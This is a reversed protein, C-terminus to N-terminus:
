NPIQLHSQRLLLKGTSSQEGITFISDRAENIFAGWDPEFSAIQYVNEGTFDLIYLLNDRSYYFRQADFWGLVGTSEVQFEYERQTELDYVLTNNSEYVALFRGHKSFEVKANPTVLQIVKEPVNEEAENQVDTYLQVTGDGVLAINPKSEYNSALLSFREDQEFLIVPQDPQSLRFVGNDSVTSGVRQVWVDRDEVAYDNFESFLSNPAGGSGIDYERLVSGLRVFVRNDRAGFFADDIHVGVKKDVDVSRNPNGLDILLTHTSDEHTYNLLMYSADSSWEIFSLSGVLKEDEDQVFLGEPLVVRTAVPEEDNIQYVLLENLKSHRHLVLLESEDDIEVFNLGDVSGLSETEIVQPVLLPYYLWTVQSGMVMVQSQWNRYGELEVRVDYTGEPLAFRSPTVDDERRGDIYVSADEPETELLLVGNQIVEGSRRDYDYGAAVLVLVLTLVILIGAIVFYSLYLKILRRRKNRINIHHM